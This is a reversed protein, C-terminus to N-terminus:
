LLIWLVAWSLMITVVISGSWLMYALARYSPRRFFFLGLGLNVGYFLIALIPLLVLQVSSGGIRVTETAVVAGAFRTPIIISAGIFLMLAVILGSVILIRAPRHDWVQAVYAAPKVSHAPIPSLSGLEFAEEMADLFGQNDKPSIAFVQRQTAVLLLHARSSALYEVRGLEDTHVSGLLAGPWSPMPLPLRIPLEDAPRAWEIEMLPIDESRLGWRLHLGDRELFYRARLLAYLSYALSPLPAFFLAALAMMFIFRGSLAIADAQELETGATLAFASLSLLLIIAAVHFVIGLRRAPTFVQLFRGSDDLM